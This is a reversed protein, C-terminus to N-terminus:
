PVAAPSPRERAADAAASRERRSCQKLAAAPNARSRTVAFPWAAPETTAISGFQSLAALALVLRSAEERDSSRSPFILRKAVPDVLSLPARRREEERGVARELSALAPAGSARRLVSAGGEAEAQTPSPQSDSLDQPRHRPQIQSRSESTHATLRRLYFGKRPERFFLPALTREAACPRDDPRCARADAEGAVPRHSRGSVLLLLWPRLRRPRSRDRPGKWTV